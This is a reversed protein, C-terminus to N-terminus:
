EHYATRYTTLSLRERRDIKSRHKRHGPPLCKDNTRVHPPRLNKFIKFATIGYAQTREELTHISKLLDYLCRFDFIQHQYAPSRHWGIGRLQQERVPKLDKHSGRNVLKVM